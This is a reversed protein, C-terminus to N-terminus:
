RMARLDILRLRAGPATSGLALRSRDPAFSWGLSEGVLRVRQEGLPRLRDRDVRVLGLSGQWTVGYLARPTTRESVESDSAAPKVALLGALVVVGSLLLLRTM